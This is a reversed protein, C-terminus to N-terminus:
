KVAWNELFDRYRFHVSEELDDIPMPPTTQHAMAHCNPCLPVLDKVPDIIYEEGVESLPVIHHVHIYEKGLRSGYILGFNFGCAVCSSGHFEICKKRANPNREYKNVLISKIEGEKYQKDGDINVDDPYTIEKTSTLKEWYSELELSNGSYSVGSTQPTFATKKVNLQSALDVHNIIIHTPSKALYDFNIDVYWAQKEPDEFDPEQRPLSIIHGSGILGPGKKGTKSLFVRDGICAKKHSGFKWRHEVKGEQSFSHMLEQMEEEPWKDKNWTIIYTL